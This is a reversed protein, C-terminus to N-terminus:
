PSYTLASMFGLACSELTQTWVWSMISWWSGEGPIDLESYEALEKLAAGLENYEVLLATRVGVLDGGEGVTRGVVM